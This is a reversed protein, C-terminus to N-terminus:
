RGMQAEQLRGNRVRPDNATFVDQKPFGSAPPEEGLRLARKYDEESCVLVGIGVDEWVRRHLLVGGYAIVTVETGRDM